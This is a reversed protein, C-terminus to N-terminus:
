VLDDLTLVRGFFPHQYVDVKQFASRESHLLEGDFTNHHGETIREGFTTM